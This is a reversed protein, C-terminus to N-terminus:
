ILCKKHLHSLAYFFLNIVQYDARKYRLREVKAKHEDDMEHRLQDLTDEYMKKVLGAEEFFTCINVIKVLIFKLSFIFNLIKGILHDVM